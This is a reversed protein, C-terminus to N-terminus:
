LRSEAKPVAFKLQSSAFLLLHHSRFKSATGNQSAMDPLSVEASNHLRSCKVKWVKYNGCLRFSSDALSFLFLSLAFFSSSLNQVSSSHSDTQFGWGGERPLSSILSHLPLKFLSYRRQLWRLVCVLAWGTNKISFLEETSFFFSHFPMRPFCYVTYLIYLAEIPM